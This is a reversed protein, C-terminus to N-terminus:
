NDVQGRGSEDGYRGNRVYPERDIDGDLGKLISDVVMPLANQIKLLGLQASNPRLGPCNLKGIARRCLRIQLIIRSSGRGRAKECQGGRKRVSSARCPRRGECQRAAPGSPM